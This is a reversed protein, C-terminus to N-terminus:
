EPLAFLNDIKRHAEEATIGGPYLLEVKTVQDNGFQVAVEHFCRGDDLLEMSINDGRRIMEGVSGKYTIAAFLRAIERELEIKETDSEARAGLLLSLLPADKQLESYSPSVCTAIELKGSRVQAVILTHAKRYEYHPTDLRTHFFRLAPYARRLIETDLCTVVEREDFRFDEIEWHGDIYVPKFTARLATRVAEETIDAADGAFPIPETEEGKDTKAVPPVTPATPRSCAAFTGIASLFTLALMRRM